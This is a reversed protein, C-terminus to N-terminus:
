SEVVSRDGAEELRGPARQQGPDVSQAPLHAIAEGFLHGGEAVAHRNVATEALWAGPATRGHLPDDIRLVLCIVTGATLRVAFDEGVSRQTSQELIVPRSRQLLQFLHSIAM